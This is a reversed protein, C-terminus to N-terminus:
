APSVDRKDEHAQNEVRVVEVTRSLDKRLQEWRDSGFHEVYSAQAKQWLPIAALLAERGKDTLEVMRTRRDSGPQISLLEASELPKLNRTLTSRDVVLDEALHAVSSSGAVHSALLIVLQTSRLGCPHLALDFHNTIARSAKRFNFCACNEAAKACLEVDPKIDRSEM